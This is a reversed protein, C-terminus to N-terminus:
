NIGVVLRPLAAAVDDRLVVDAHDDAWTAEYNIVLLRAGHELALAPLDGAPYVELGTGAVILLDCEQAAQEAAQWTDVPLLEDFLIVDPKLAGGCSCFPVAGALATALHQDAADHQGCQLCTASRIHGHLELVTQSGARQHLGDINQTIVTQLKGNRELQALAYHAANPEARLMIGLLPSIWRYFPQPDRRFAHLSAVVAPDAHQWVGSTPSRFDPIGSPTSFGAGTLAVIREARRVLEVAHSVSTSMAAITVRWRSVFLRM